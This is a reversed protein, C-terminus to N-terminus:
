VLAASRTNAEAYRSQAPVQDTGGTSNRLGGVFAAIELLGTPDHMEMDPSASFSLRRAFFDNQAL